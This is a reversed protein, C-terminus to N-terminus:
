KLSGFVRNRAFELLFIGFHRPRIEAFSFYRKNFDLKANQEIQIEMQM